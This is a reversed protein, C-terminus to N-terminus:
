YAPPRGQPPRTAMEPWEHHPVVSCLGDTDERWVLQLEFFHKSTLDREAEALPQSMDVLALHKSKLLDFSEWMWHLVRDSVDEAWDRAQELSTADMPWRLESFTPRRGM